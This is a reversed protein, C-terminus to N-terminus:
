RGRDRSSLFHATGLRRALETRHEDAITKMTRLLADKDAPADDLLPKFGPDSLHLSIPALLDLLSDDTRHEKRRDMAALLDDVSKGGHALFYWLDYLDRSAKREFLLSSKLEFVADPDVLALHGLRTPQASEYVALQAPEYPAFFTLKVGEIQWDQQTRHLDIGDNEANLLAAQDTILAPKTSGALKSVIADIKPQPLDGRTWALDIDESVRHSVQLALATGGILFFGQVEELDKLKHLLRATNEPLSNFDLV